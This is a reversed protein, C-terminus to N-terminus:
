GGRGEGGGRSWTEINNNRYVRIMFVDGESEVVYRYNCVTVTSGWESTM